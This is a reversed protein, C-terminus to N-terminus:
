DQAPVQKQWFKVPLQGRLGQSLQCRSTVAFHHLHKQLPYLRGSCLRSFMLLSSKGARRFGDTHLVSVFHSPAMRCHCQAMDRRLVPSTPAAALRSLSPICRLAHSSSPLAQALTGCQARNCEQIQM